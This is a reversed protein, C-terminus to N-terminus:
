EGAFKSPPVNFHKTFCRTFYKPDNFGVKYAVEAITLTRGSNSTLIEKAMNLRYNRLLEGVSTGTLSQIKKYLPSRSIGMDATFDEIGYEANSYNRKMTDLVKDMFAKDQSEPRIRLEDSIMHYAFKEQLMKRNRM